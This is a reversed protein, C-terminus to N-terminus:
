YSRGENGDASVLEPKRIGYYVANREAQACWQSEAQAPDLMPMHMAAVRQLVTRATIDGALDAIFARRRLIALILEAEQHDDAHSYLAAEICALATFDLDGLMRARELDLARDLNTPTHDSTMAFVRLGAKIGREYESCALTDVEDLYTRTADMLGDDMAKFAKDLLVVVQPNPSPPFACFYRYPTPYSRAVDPDLGGALPRFAHALEAIQGGWSELRDVLPAAIPAPDLQAALATVLHGAWAQSRALDGSQVVHWLQAESVIAPDSVGDVDALLEAFSGDAQDLRGSQACAVGHLYLALAREDPQLNPYDLVNRTAWRAENPEHAALAHEGFLLGLRIATLDAGDFCEVGVGFLLNRQENGLVTATTPVSCHKGEWPLGGSERAKAVEAEMAAVHRSVIAHSFVILYPQAQPIGMTILLRRAVECANALFPKTGLSDLSTAMQSLGESIQGIKLTSAALLVEAIIVADGRRNIMARDRAENLLRKATWIENRELHYAALRLRGEIAAACIGLRDAITVVGEALPLCRLINDFRFHHDLINGLALLFNEVHGATYAYVLSQQFAKLAKDCDGGVVYVLGLKGYATSLNSSMDDMLASFRPAEAVAVRYIDICGNLMKEAHGRQGHEEAVIAAAQFFTTVAFDTLPREAIPIDAQNSAMRLLATVLAGRRRGWTCELSLLFSAAAWKGIYLERSWADMVRHLAEM